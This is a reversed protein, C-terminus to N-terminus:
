STRLPRYIFYVRYLRVAKTNYLFNNSNTKLWIDLSQSYIFEKLNLKFIYFHHLYVLRWTYNWLLIYQSYKLTKKYCFSLPWLQKQLGHWHRFRSGKCYPPFLKTWEWKFAVCWSKTNCLRQNCKIEVMNFTFYEMQKLNYTM